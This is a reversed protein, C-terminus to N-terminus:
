NLHGEAWKIDGADLSRQVKVQGRKEKVLNDLKQQALQTKQTDSYTATERKELRVVWWNNQVQVPGFVDGPNKGVLAAKIADPELDPSEVPLLGDQQRSDLDASETQAITGMDEGAQIRALVADASEKSQTLVTRLTVQEGSDGLDTKLKQLLRTNATSAETLKRYSADSMKTTKLKDRYLSDFPSRAGGVPVGLEDAIAKTVDDRSLSIGNDKAVLVTLAEEELKGLLAAESLAPTTTNSNQAQLFPGLRQTYYRLSFTQGGVALVTSRPRAIQQDYLQYGYVGVVVLLVAIAAGVVTLRTVRETWSIGAFRPAAHKVRQRPRPLGTTRDRRAM